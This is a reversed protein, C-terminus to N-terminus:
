AGRNQRKAAWKLQLPERFLLFLGILLFLAHIWWLGLTPSIKGSEIFSRTTVLLALYSMYLLAAPLLRLFRGQRPSVRALPVAMFAVIFALLPVSLRWQLEAQHELTSSNFLRATPWSDREGMEQRLEPKPLLVGYREYQIARYDAQGPLGDYRVGNELILYRNGDPRNEIRGREALLLSIPQPKAGRAARQQESIFVGGLEHRESSLTETYVVRSSGRMSQFRGPMLTDFESMRDQNALIQEVQAFGGPTISLSLWGSLAAILVAIPLTWRLLRTQSIGAASLVSMESEVYMRGYVLLIGLFLGLPLILQLTGPIRFAMIALLLSPDLQGQAALALYKVLRGSMIIVLLVASVASLTTLVERFLYRFLIM